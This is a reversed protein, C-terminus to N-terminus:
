ELFLEPSSLLNEQERLRSVAEDLTCPQFRIQDRPRLQGVSHLDASIVNAIKPYGGTTQQEVFLIIPQGSAPVQIAGLPVGESIMQRHSIPPLPAGELRLGMRNSEEAVRYSAEYFLRQTSEPFWDSQSGPTVRLIKSPALKALAGPAIMRKGFPLEPRKSFPQASVTGLPLVDGRKLPRGDFGGLGSLLHTSASGLFPKVAIGGRVCLYSRAGSQTPGLRLTQGSNIEFSRWREIPAGDLTAGFESGTLAAIGGDPFLFTGGLLTMELGATSEPNGILLNGLRLSLADAAGSPSVGMPGFGPRGLDQVTTLLGPTKVEIKTM